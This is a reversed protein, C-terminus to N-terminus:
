VLTGGYQSYYSAIRDIYDVTEKPWPYGRAVHGMGFNYAALAVRTSDFHELLHAMYAAQCWISHEPNYRNPHIIHLKDAWETFTPAMFQALGIAGASSAANPDFNAEARVQAKLLKWAVGYKDGYHQLLSDYRDSAAV